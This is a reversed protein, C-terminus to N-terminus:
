FLILQETHATEEENPKKFGEGDPGELSLFKFSQLSPRKTSDLHCLLMLEASPPQLVKSFGESADTHTANGQPNLFFSLTLLFSILLPLGAM